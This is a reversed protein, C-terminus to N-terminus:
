FQDHVGPPGQRVPVAEFVRAVVGLRGGERGLDTVVEDLVEGGRVLPGPVLPGLEEGLPPLLALPPDHITLSKNHIPVNHKYLLPRGDTRGDTSGIQSNLFGINALDSVIIPVRIPKIAVRAQAQKAVRLNPFVLCIPKLVM